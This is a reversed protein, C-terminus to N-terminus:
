EHFLGRVKRAVRRTKRSFTEIPFRKKNYPQTGWGDGFPNFTPANTRRLFATDWVVELAEFMEDEMLIDFMRRITPINIDDLILLANEDLHPYIYFYELEPFPYAHPGDLLALQYKDAFKHRPLTQQTPGETYHVVGPRLLSSSRVATISNDGGLAFVEHHRSLHSLLLTTKGSGTEISREIKRAAGLRGLASLVQWPVSGSTHWEGPLARIGDIIKDIDDVHVM